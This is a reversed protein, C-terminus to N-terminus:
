SQALDVLVKVDRPNAGRALQDIQERARGLTVVRTVLGAPRLTGASLLAAVRELDGAYGLSTVIAKEYLLLHALDVPVADRTLGVVVVTGGRDVARIAQAVAPAAGTTDVALQAGGDTLARVERSVDTGSEIIDFGLEQALAARPAQPESVLARLGIARAVEAVCAGIPGFGLVLVTQGARAGGRDLAHLGVGLPELLAGVFFDVNDPLKIACYDPIQVRPAFAGDLHLGISGGVRCLNYAGSRCARCVGCRLCADAAVRDGPSLATVEDSVRVVTGSFEHGLTVPSTAGTLPHPREVGRISFPGARYETIDSGCIGCYAVEVEIEGPRLTKPSAVADLRLDGRGHWRLAEM